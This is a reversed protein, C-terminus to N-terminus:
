DIKSSGIILFAKFPSLGIEFKKGVIKEGDCEGYIPSKSAIKYFHNEGYQVEKHPIYIGKKLNKINLIYDLLTINGLLAYNLKQDNVIADPQIILGNGFISGNCVAILLIKKNFINNEITLEINKRKFTLFTRIIALGYSFSAGFTKRYTELYNVVEGGFGIDCINVFYRINDDAIVYPIDVELFSPSNISDLFNSMTLKSSISRVFDNGTGYPIVALLPKQPNLIWGNIVENVTGDGGIILILDENIHKSIETAHASSTTETLKFTFSLQGQCNRLFLKLLNTKKKGGHLICHISKM